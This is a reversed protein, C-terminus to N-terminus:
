FSLFSDRFSHVFSEEPGRSAEFLSQEPRYDVSQHMLSHCPNKLEQYVMPFYQIRGSSWAQFTLKIISSSLISLSVFHMSNHM